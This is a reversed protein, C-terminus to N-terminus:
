TVTCDSAFLASIEARCSVPRGGFSADAICTFVVRGRIMCEVIQGRRYRPTQYSGHRLRHHRTESDKRLQGVVTAGTKIARRLFPRKVYGGDVVTGASRGAM